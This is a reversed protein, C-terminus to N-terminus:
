RQVDDGGKFYRITITKDNFSSNITFCSCEKSVKSLFTTLEKVFLKVSSKKPTRM